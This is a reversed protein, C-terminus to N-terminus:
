IKEAKKKVTSIAFPSAAAFLDQTSMPPGSPGHAASDLLRSPQLQPKFVSLPTMAPSPEHLAPGPSSELPQSWPPLMESSSRPISHAHFEMQALLMAAQTSYQSDRSPSSARVNPQEKDLDNHCSQTAALDLAATKNQSLVDATENERETDRAKHEVDKPGKRKTAPSSSFNYTRPKSRPANGITWTTAGVKRYVFESSSNLAPLTSPRLGHDVQLTDKGAIGLPDASTPVKPELDGSDKPVKSNAPAPLDQSDRQFISQHNVESIYGLTTPGTSEPSLQLGTYPAPTIPQITAIIINGPADARQPFDQVGLPAKPVSLQLEIDGEYHSLNERLRCPSPELTGSQSRTPIDRESPEPRRLWFPSDSFPKSRVYQSTGATSFKTADSEGHENPSPATAPPVQIDELSADHETIVEDHSTARSVEPSAVLSANGADQESGGISKRPVPLDSRSAVAKTSRRSKQDVAPEKQAIPQRKAWPNKWGGNFPGKLAASLIVPRKGQLYQAAIKEIRRRKAAQQNADLHEPTVHEFVDGHDIHYDSTSLCRKLHPHITPPM